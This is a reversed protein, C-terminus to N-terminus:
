AIGDTGRDVYVKRGMGNESTVYVKSEKEGTGSNVHVKSGMESEM